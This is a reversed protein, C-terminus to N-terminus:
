FFFVPCFNRSLFGISHDSVFQTWQSKVKCRLLPTPPLFPPSPCPLSLPRCESDFDYKTGMKWWIDLFSFLVSVVHRLVMVSTMIWSRESAKFKVGCFPPLFSPPLFLFSPCPLSLPFCESDFDYKTGM